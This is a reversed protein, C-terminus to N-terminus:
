GPGPIFIVVMDFEDVTYAVHGTSNTDANKKSNRRTTEFHWDGMRFKVQIRVVPGGDDTIADYSEGVIDKISRGSKERLVGLVHDECVYALVKGIDRHQKPDQAARELWASLHPVWETAGM